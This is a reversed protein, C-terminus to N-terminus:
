PREYSSHSSLSCYASSALARMASPQVGGFGFDPFFRRFFTLSCRDSNVSTRVMGAAVHCLLSFIPWCFSFVAQWV